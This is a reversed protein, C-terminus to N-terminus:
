NRDNRCGTGDKMCEDILRQLSAENWANMFDGHMGNADNNMSSALVVRKGNNVDFVYNFALQPVYVPHTAPCEGRLSYAMHSRNDASTPQGNSCDPFQLQLVVNKGTSCDIPLPSDQEAITDGTCGWGAILKGTGSGPNQPQPGTAHHDGAIVKLDTPFMGVNKANVGDAVRYYHSMKVMRVPEPGNATKLFMRPIWYGSHDLPNSGDRSIRGSHPKEMLSAGTDDEDVRICGFVHMHGTPSAQGPYVIPDLAATRAVIPDNCVVNWGLRDGSDGATQAQGRKSVGASSMVVLCVALAACAVYLIRRM